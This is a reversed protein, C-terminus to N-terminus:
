SCENVRSLSSNDQGHKYQLETKKTFTHPTSAFRSLNKKFRNKIDTDINVTNEVM